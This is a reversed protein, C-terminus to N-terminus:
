ILLRTVFTNDELAKIKEDNYYFIRFVSMKDNIKKIANRVGIVKTAFM